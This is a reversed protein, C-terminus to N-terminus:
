MIRISKYKYKQGKGLDLKMRYGAVLEHSGSSARSIASLPYDYSYGVYVGKIDVSLIFSVADKWRYSVGGTFMKRWSALATIEGSTHGSSHRLLISPKIEFLTNKIPINCGAMLYYAAPTSFELESGGENSTNGLGSKFRITPSMIHLASFGVWWNTKSYWIGAGLDFTSGKIDQTPLNDDPPSSTEDEGPIFIESGKFTQSLFGPQLGISLLGKYLPIKYSIQLAANLTRYLGISEHYVQLGAGIRHKEFLVIPMGAVLAFTKPAGEIGAWQLRAAGKIDLFDTNGQVAPNYYGPVAFYQTFQADSQARLLQGPILSIFALLIKTRTRM